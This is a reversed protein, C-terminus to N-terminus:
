ASIVQSYSLGFFRRSCESGFDVCSVKPFAYKLCKKRQAEEKKGRKM